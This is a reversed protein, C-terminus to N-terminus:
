RKRRDRAWFNGILAVAASVELLAERYESLQPIKSAAIVLMALAAMSTTRWDKLLASRASSAVTPKQDEDM